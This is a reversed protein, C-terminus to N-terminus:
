VALKRGDSIAAKISRGRHVVLTPLSSITAARGTALVWETLDAAPPALLKVRRNTRTKTCLYPQGHVNKRRALIAREHIENCQM